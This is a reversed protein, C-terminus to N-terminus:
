LKQHREPRPFRHRIRQNRFYAEIKAKIFRSIFSRSSVRRGAPCELCNRAPGHRPSNWLLGLVLELGSSYSCGTTCCFIDKQDRHTFYAVKTM